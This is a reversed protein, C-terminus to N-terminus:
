GLFAEWDDVLHRMRNFGMDDCLKRMWFADFHSPKPIPAKTEPLPLRVLYENFEIREQNAQIDKYKKSSSNM